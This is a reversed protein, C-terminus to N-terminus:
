PSAGCGVQTLTVTLRVGLAAQSIEVKRGLQRMASLVDQDHPAPGKSLREQLM